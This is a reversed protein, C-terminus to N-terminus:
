GSSPPKHPGFPDARAMRAAMALPIMVYPVTIALYKEPMPTAWGPVESFLVEAMVMLTATTIASAYMLVPIRISPNATYFGWAFWVYLPGYVCASLFMAVRLFPPADALLPDCDAYLDLLWEEPPYWGGRELVPHVVSVMDFSLSTVAFTCCVVFFFLDVKRHQLSPM